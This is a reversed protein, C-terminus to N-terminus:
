SILITVGRGFETRLATFLFVPEGYRTISKCVSEPVGAGEKGPTAIHECARM